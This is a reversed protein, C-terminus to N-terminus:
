KPGAHVIAQFAPLDRLADFDPDKLAERRFADDLEVARRLPDFAAEPRGQLSALCALNYHPAPHDPDLAIAKRYAAEAEDLRGLEVLLNGYNNQGAVNDPELAIARLAHPEAEELRGTTRLLIALDNHPRSWSPEAEIARLFRAEAEAYRKEGFLVIGLMTHPWGWDPRQEAARRMAEEAGAADGQNMRLLGLALATEASDLGGEEALDAVHVVLARTAERQVRPDADLAELMEEVVAEPDRDTASSPADARGRALLVAAATAAVAATFYWILRHRSLM